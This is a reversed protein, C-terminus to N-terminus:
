GSPVLLRGLLASLTKLEDADLASLQALHLANVPGDLSALLELGQPTIQSRVVRRDEGDRIRTALGLKELRDLLRTIDPDRTVLREVVAGCALGEPGTGRLIRLVNYQTPTIGHPRLIDSMEQEFRSAVRLLALYAASEPSAFPKSQRLAAAIAANHPTM